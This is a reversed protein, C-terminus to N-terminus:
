RSLFMSFVGEIAILRATLSTTRIPSSARLSTRRPMSSNLAKIGVLYFINQLVLRNDIRQLSINGVIQRLHAGRFHAFAQRCAVGTKQVGARIDFTDTVMTFCQSFACALKNLIVHNERVLSLGLQQLEAFHYQTSRVNM